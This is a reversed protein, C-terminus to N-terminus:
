ALDEFRYGFRAIDPACLEAVLDRTRASYWKACRGARV